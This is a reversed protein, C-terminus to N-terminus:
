TLLLRRNNFHVIASPLVVGSQDCALSQVWEQKQVGSLKTNGQGNTLSPSNKPTKRGGSTAATEPSKSIEPPPPAVPPAAVLRCSFPSIKVHSFFFHSSSLLASFLFFYHFRCPSYLPSLFASSDAFNVSAMCFHGGAFESNAVADYAVFVKQWYTWVKQWYEIHMKQVWNICIAVCYRRSVVKSEGVILYYFSPGRRFICSAASSLNQLWSFRSAVKSCWNVNVSWGVFICVSICTCHM